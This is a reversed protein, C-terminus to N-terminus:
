VKVLCLLLNLGQGFMPTLKVDLIEIILVTLDRDNVDYPARQKVGGPCGM